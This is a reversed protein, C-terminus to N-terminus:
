KCSTCYRSIKANYVHSNINVNKIVAGDTEAFLICDATIEAGNGDFTGTYPANKGILGVNSYAWYGSYDSYNISKAVVKANADTQGAEVIRAFAVLDDADSIYYVGESDTTLNYDCIAQINVQSKPMTFEYTNDSTKTVKVSKGKSDTVKIEKVSNILNSYDNYLDVEVEITKGARSYDASTQIIDEDYIDPVPCKEVIKQLKFKM